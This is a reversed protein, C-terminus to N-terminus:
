WSRGPSAAPRSCSSTRPCPSTVRSGSWASRRVAGPRGDGRAPVAGAGLSVHHARAAALWPAIRARRGGAARRVSLRAAGNLLAGFLSSVAGSFAPGQLLTLRDDAGIGLGNTYRMVNHLVNRHTDLVGKPEGTSGSTYYVCAAADSEVPVGPPLAPRPGAVPEIQISRIGLGAVATALGAHEGDVLCLGPRAHGLVTDLRSRPQSPDLPVYAKGAKLVGLIAAVLATGQALLLAVRHPGGGLVALVADAIRNSAWDLEEYTLTAQPGRVALRAGHRAVQDAFRAPISRALDGRPFPTFRAAPRIRPDM